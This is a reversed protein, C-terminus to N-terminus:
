QGVPTPRAPGRGIGDPPGSGFGSATGTPDRVAGVDITVAPEPTRSVKM